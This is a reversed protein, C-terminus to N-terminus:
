NNSKNSTLYETEFSWDASDYTPVIVRGDKMVRMRLRDPRKSSTDYDGADSSELNSGKEGNVDVHIDVYDANEPWEDPLGWWLMGDNSRFDPETASNSPSSSMNGLKIVKKGVQERFSEGNQSMEPWFNSSNVVGNENMVASIANQMTNVAKKYLFKEKNVTTKTLLPITIMALVGIVVLSILIESMSMAKRKQM